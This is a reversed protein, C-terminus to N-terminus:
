LLKLEELILDLTDNLTPDDLMPDEKKNSETQIEFLPTTEYYTKTHVAKDLSKPNVFKTINYIHAYLNTIIEALIKDTIKEDTNETILHWKSNKQYLGSVAISFSKLIDNTKIPMAANLFKASAYLAKVEDDSVDVGHMTKAIQKFMSPYVHNSLIRLAFDAERPNKEFGDYINLEAKIQESNPNNLVGYGKIIGRPHAIIKPISTSTSHSLGADLPEIKASSKRKYFELIAQYDKIIELLISLSFFVVKGDPFERCVDFEALKLLEQKIKNNLYIDIHTQVTNEFIEQKNKLIHEKDTCKKSNYLALRHFGLESYYKTQISIANQLKAKLM